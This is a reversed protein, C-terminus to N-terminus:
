LDDPPQWFGRPVGRTAAEQSFGVFKFPPVQIMRAEPQQAEYLLQFVQALRTQADPLM